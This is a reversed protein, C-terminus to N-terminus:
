SLRKGQDAIRDDKKISEASLESQRWMHLGVGLAYIMGEHYSYWQTQLALKM